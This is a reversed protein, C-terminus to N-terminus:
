APRPAIRDKLDLFPREILRWSAMAALLTLGFVVVVYAALRPLRWLTDAGRVQEGFLATLLQSIPFHFLYMAYSYKGLMRLWPRSLHAQLRRIPARSDDAVAAAILSGSVLVVLTQGVVQVSVEDSHFGHLWGTLLLVGASATFGISARWRELWARGAPDRVLVAVLAGAALADWRAVTFMYATGEPLGFLRLALRIFPSAVLLGVCVARLRHRPVLWILLPWLLYFQEEVALSWLHSLGPIGLNFPQVWNALYFWYPWQHALVARSWEPSWSVTAALLVMLGVLFYYVPLIRLARRIYFSRFYNRKGKSDLLIGTILFGSLVFFLQVGIWGTSAVAVVLKFLLHEGSEAVWAANHVLVILIAVGRVGDLPPIRLFSPHEPTEVPTM